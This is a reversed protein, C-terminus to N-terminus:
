DKGDDLRILNLLEDVIDLAYERPNDIDCVSDNYANNLTAHLADKFSMCRCIGSCKPCDCELQIPASCSFQKFFERCKRCQIM